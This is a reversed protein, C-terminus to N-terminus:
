EWFEKAMDDGVIHKATHKNLALKDLVRPDDLTVAQRIGVERSDFRQRHTAGCRSCAMHWFIEHKDPGDEFDWRVFEWHHKPCNNPKYLYSKSEYETGCSMCMFLFVVEEGKIATAIHVAEKGCQCQVKTNSM